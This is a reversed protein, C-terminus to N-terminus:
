QVQTTHELHKRILVLNTENWVNIGINILLKNYKQYNSKMFLVSLTSLELILLM